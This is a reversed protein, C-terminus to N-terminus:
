RWPDIVPVGTSVFDKTNRTVVTLGHALATAAIFCDREPRPDPVHLAAARLVAREDLPLVRDAFQELVATHLWERLREGQDPDRREVRRIGLDIEYVSIVSLFLDGPTRAAVWARVRPDCRRTRLESVVNTDLLYSM